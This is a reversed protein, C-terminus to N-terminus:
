PYCNNSSGGAGSRSVGLNCRTMQATGGNRPISVLYGLCDSNTAPSCNDLTVQFVMQYTVASGSVLANAVVPTNLDGDSEFWISNNGVGAVSVDWDGGTDFVGAGASAGYFGTLAVGRPIAQPRRDFDWQDFGDGAAGAAPVANENYCVPDATDSQSYRLIAYFPAPSDTASALIRHPSAAEVEVDTDTCAKDACLIFRTPCGKLMAASRAYSLDSVLSQAAQELAAVRMRSTLSVFGLVTVILGIFVVVLLEILTFARENRM